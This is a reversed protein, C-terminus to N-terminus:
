YNKFADHTSFLPFNQFVNKERKEANEENKGSTKEIFILHELYYRADFNFACPPLESFFMLPALPSFHPGKQGLLFIHVKQPCSLASAGFELALPV